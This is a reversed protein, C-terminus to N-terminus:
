DLVIRVERDPQADTITVKGAPLDVRLRPDGDQGTTGDDIAITATGDAIVCRTFGQGFGGYLRTPGCRVRVRCPMEALPTPALAVECRTGGEVGTSGVSRTVSGERVVPREFSRKGHGETGFLPAGKREGDERELELEVRYAPNKSTLLVRERRTDFLLRPVEDGPAQRKCAADYEQTKADFAPGEFLMCELPPTTVRPGHLEDDGCHISLASGRLKEGDSTVDLSAVCATGVTLPWGEAKLVSARWQLQAERLQPPPAPKAVPKAAPKPEPAEPSLAWVAAGAAALALVGIGARVLLRRDARLAVYWPTRARASSVADDSAHSAPLASAGDSPQSAGTSPAAPQARLTPAERTTFALHFATDLKGTAAPLVACVEPALAALWAPTAEHARAAGCELCSPAGDDGSADGDDGMSAGCRTCTPAKRGYLWDLPKGALETGQHGQGDALREYSGLARRLLERWIADDIRLERGCGPCTLRQLPRGLPARAGCGGCPVAVRFM